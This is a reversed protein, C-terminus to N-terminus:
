FAGTSGSSMGGHVDLRGMFCAEPDGVVDHSSYLKGADCTKQARHAVPDTLAPTIIGLLSHSGTDAVGSAAPSAVAQKAVPQAQASAATLLVGAALAVLTRRSIFM